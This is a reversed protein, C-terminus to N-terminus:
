QLGARLADAINSLLAARSRMERQTVFDGPFATPGDRRLREAEAELAETVKLWNMADLKGRDAIQSM